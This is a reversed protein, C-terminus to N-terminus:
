CESNVAEPNVVADKQGKARGQYQYRKLAGGDYDGHHGCTPCTWGYTANLKSKGKTLDPFLVHEINCEECSILVYWHGPILPFSFVEV